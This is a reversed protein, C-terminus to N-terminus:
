LSLKKLHEFATKLKNFNEPNAKPYPIYIYEVYKRDDDSSRPFRLDLSDVIPRNRETSSRCQGSDIKIQLYGVPQKNIQPVDTISTIHCPCFDYYEVDEWDCWTAQTATYSAFCENKKVVKITLTSYLYGISVSKIFTKSGTNEVVYEEKAEDLKNQLFKVTEEKSLEKKDQAITATTCVTLLLITILKKM